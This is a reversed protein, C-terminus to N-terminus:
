ARFTSTEPVLYHIDGLIVMYDANGRLDRSSKPMTYLVMYTLYLFSLKM